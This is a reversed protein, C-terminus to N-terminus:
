LSSLAERLKQAHMELIRSEALQQGHSRDTIGTHCPIVHLHFHFVTQGAAAGNLQMLRIGAPKFAADIGRAIHRATRIVASAYPEKLGFLDEAPMKPLVLTHGDSQPMVDLFALTEDDEFVKYAPAEGRIIRAFINSEDYAMFTKM